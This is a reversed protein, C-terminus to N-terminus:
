VVIKDPDLGAAAALKRVRAEYIALDAGKRALRADEALRNNLLVEEEIKVGALHNRAQELDNRLPGIESNIRSKNAEHEEKAARTLDEHKAAEGKLTAITAQVTALAKDAAEAEAKRTRDAVDLDNLVATKEDIQRQLVDRQEMLTTSLLENAKHAADPVGTLASVEAKIAALVPQWQAIERLTTDRTQIHVANEDLIRKRDLMADAATPTSHVQM